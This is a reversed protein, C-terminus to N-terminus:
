FKSPPLLGEFSQWGGYPDDNQRKKYADAPNSPYRAVPRGLPVAVGQVNGSMTAEDRRAWLELLDLNSWRSMIRDYM